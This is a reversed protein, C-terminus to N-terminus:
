SGKRLAALRKITDRREPIGEDADKWLELLAEYNEIALEQKGLEEYAKGKIYFARPYSHHRSDVLINGFLFTAQMDNATLVVNDWDGADGYINAKLDLNFPYSYVGLKDYEIMAREINGQLRFLEAKLHHQAGWSNLIGIQKAPMNLIDILKKLDEQNGSGAYLLGKEEYLWRENDMNPNMSLASDLLMFARVTDGINSYYRALSALSEIVIQEDIRRGIKVAERTLKIAKKYQGQEAYV